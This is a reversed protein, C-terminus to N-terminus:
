KPQLLQLISQACGGFDARSPIILMACVPCGQASGVNLVGLGLVLCLVIKRKRPLQSRIIIPIPIALLMLDSSINFATAFIM